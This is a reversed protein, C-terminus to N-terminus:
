REVAPEPNFYRTLGDLCGEWGAAHDRRTEGDPIREHTVIVETAQGDDRELLDVAVREGNDDKGEIAWRFVLRSPHLIEEYAGGIWLVSGDPFRNGLRYRGGVKLDVSAGVCTVHKPGWWQLLHKPQTWAEFVRARPALVIQRVILPQADGTTM